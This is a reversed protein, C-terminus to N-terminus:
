SPKLHVLHAWTTHLQTSTPETNARLHGSPAWSPKLITFTPKLITGPHGLNAGLHGWSPGLLRWTPGLIPSTPGLVAWTPGLKAGLLGLHESIAELNGVLQGSTPELIAHLGVFCFCESFWPFVIFKSTRRSWTRGLIAWTLAFNAWLPRSAPELQGFNPELHSM